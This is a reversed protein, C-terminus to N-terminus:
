ERRIRACRKCFFLLFSVLVVGVDQPLCRLLEEVVDHRGDGVLHFDLVILSSGGAVAKGEDDKQHLLLRVAGLVHHRVSGTLSGLQYESADVAGSSDVEVIEPLVVLHPCAHHAGASFRGNNSSAYIGRLYAVEAHEDRGLEVQFEVGGSPSSVIQGLHDADDVGDEVSIFGLRPILRLATPRQLNSIISLTDVGIRFACEEEVSRSLAL